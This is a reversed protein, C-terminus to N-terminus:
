LLRHISILISVGNMYHAYYLRMHAFTMNMDTTRAFRQHSQYVSLDTVVLVETHLQIPQNNLARNKWQLRLKIQNLKCLYQKTSFLLSFM